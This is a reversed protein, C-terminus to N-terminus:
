HRKIICISEIEKDNETFVFCNDINVKKIHIKIENINKDRHLRKFRGTAMRKEILIRQSDRMGMENEEKQTNEAEIISKNDDNKLLQKLFKIIQKLKEGGITGWSDSVIGLLQPLNNSKWHAKTIFHIISM